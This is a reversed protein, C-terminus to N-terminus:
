SWNGCISPKMENFDLLKNLTVVPNELYKAVASAVNRDLTKLAARNPPARHDNATTRACDSGAPTGGPVSRAVTEVIGIGPKGYTRAKTTSISGM